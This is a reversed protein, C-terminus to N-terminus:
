GCIWVGIKPIKRIGASILSSLAFSVAATVVIALSTPLQPRVFEFVPLLVFMHLLYTGYSAESLPRVILRYFRGGGSIRRLALFVAATAMVVGLSCYEISMELDVAKAYPASYPFSGGIRFFFGGGIIAAGALWLPVATALTKGFTLVPAFRRFWLGLLMYGIFGSVYQFTGFQNWPCEGYLYPVSGFGFLPEGFLCTWLRRLYPFLTTILWLVIWGRLEREGVKVAWPTLLPMLLYLGLLMPVFWLHGGAAPFNFFLRAFDGKFWWTYACSWLVFPVAIRGLRRRFFEGAPKQLPFLLYSSAMVFLPVCVRCFVETLAVWVADARDAIYTGEDGGLYFPECAHIAMVMFCAIVRLYDLFVIRANQM